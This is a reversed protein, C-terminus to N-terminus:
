RELDDLLGPLSAFHDLLHDAGAAEPPVRAYGYTMLVVKLDAAQGAAVDHENDGVLLAPGRPVGLEALAHRVHDPHPKRVSLTDGGVVADIYRSLHLAELLQRSAQEPKNTCVALRRGQGHLRALTEAVGEFPRTHEAPSQEYFAVFRETAAPVEAEPLPAGTEAFAREVLRQAGDGVMRRVAADDLPPRGHEALLRNTAIRLDTVSDILTGDLDFVLATYM